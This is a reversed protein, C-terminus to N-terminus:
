GPEFEPIEDTDVTQAIQALAAVLGLLYCMPGAQPVLIASSHEGNGLRDLVLASNILIFDSIPYRNDDLGFRLHRIFPWERVTRELYSTLNARTPLIQDVAQQVIFADDLLGVLGFDDPIADETEPFYILAARALEKQDESYEREDLVRLLLGLDAALRGFM